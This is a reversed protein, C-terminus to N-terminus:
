VQSDAKFFDIFQQYDMWSGPLSSESFDLFQFLNHGLSDKFLPPYSPPKAMWEGNNLMHSRDSSFSELFASGKVPRFRQGFRELLLDMNHISTKPRFAQNAYAELNSPFPLTSDLDYVVCGTDNKEIAIVHYDWIVPFDPDASSKQRWIACQKQPNSIFVAFINAINGPYNEIMKFVNEECYCSTYVCDEAEIM